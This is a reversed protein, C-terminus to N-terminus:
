RVTDKLIFHKKNAIKERTHMHLTPNPSTSNSGMNMVSTFTSREFGHLWLSTTKKTAAQSSATIGKPLLRWTLAQSYWSTRHEPNFRCKFLSSRVPKAATLHKGRHVDMSMELTQGKKHKM